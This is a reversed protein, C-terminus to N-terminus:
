AVKATARPSSRRWSTWYRTSNATLPKPIWGTRPALCTSGAMPKKGARLLSYFNSEPGQKGTIVDAIAAVFSLPSLLVDRLGDAFLKVQFVILDRLLRPRAKGQESM